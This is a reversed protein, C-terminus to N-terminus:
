DGQLTERLVNKEQQKIWMLGYVKLVFSFPVPVKSLHQQICRVTVGLFGALDNLEWGNGEILELVQGKSELKYKRKIKKMVRLFLKTTM